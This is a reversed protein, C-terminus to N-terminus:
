ALENRLIQTGKLVGNEIPKEPVQITEVVYGREPRDVRKIVRAQGLALTSLIGSVALNDASTRASAALRAGETRIDDPTTKPPEKKAQVSPRAGSESGFFPGKPTTIPYVDIKKELEELSWANKRVGRKESMESEFKADASLKAMLDFAWELDILEEPKLKLGYVVVGDLTTLVRGYRLIEEKERDNLPMPIFPGGPMDQALLQGDSNIAFITDEYSLVKYIPMREIEGGQIGLLPIKKTKPVLPSQGKSVIRATVVEPIKALLEDPLESFDSKGVYQVAIQKFGILIEHIVSDRRDPRHVRMFDSANNLEVLFLQYAGQGDQVIVMIEDGLPRRVVIAGPIIASELEVLSRRRYELRTKEIIRKLDEKLRALLGLADAEVVQRMYRHQTVDSLRADLFASIFARYWFSRYENYRKELINKWVSALYYVNSRDEEDKFNERKSFISVGEELAELMQRAGHYDRIRRPLGGPERYRQLPRVNSRANQLLRYHAIALEEARTPDTKAIEAIKDKVIHRAARDDYFLIGKSTHTATELISLLEQHVVSKKAIKRLEILQQKREDLKQYADFLLQEFFFSIQPRLEGKRGEDGFRSAEDFEKKLDNIQWFIARRRLALFQDRREYYRKKEQASWNDINQIKEQTYAAAPFDEQVQKLRKLASWADPGFDGEVLAMLEKDNEWNELPREVPSKEATLSQLRIDAHSFIFQLSEIRRELEVLKLEGEDPPFKSKFHEVFEPRHVIRLIEDRVETITEGFKDSLSQLDKVDSPVNVI